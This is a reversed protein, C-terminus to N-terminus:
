PIVAMSKMPAIPEPLVVSMARSTSFNFPWAPTATEVAIRCGAIVLIKHRLGANLDHLHGRDVATMEVCIENALGELLDAELTKAKKEDFVNAVQDARRFKREAGFGAHNDNANGFPWPAHALM